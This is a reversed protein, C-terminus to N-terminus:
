KLNNESLKQITLKSYIYDLIIFKRFDRTTGELNYLQDRMFLAKDILKEHDVDELRSNIMEQMRESLYFDKNNYITDDFFYELDHQLIFEQYDKTAREYNLYDWSYVKQWDIYIGLVDQVAKQYELSEDNDSLRVHTLVYEWTYSLKSYVFPHYVKDPDYYYQYIIQKDHQVYRRYAEWNVDYEIYWVLFHKKDLSRDFYAIRINDCLETQIQEAVFNLTDIDIEGRANQYYSQACPHIYEDSFAINWVLFIAYLVVLLKKM